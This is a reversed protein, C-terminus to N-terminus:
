SLGHGQSRLRCMAIMTLASALTLTLTLTAISPVAEMRALALRVDPEDELQAVM